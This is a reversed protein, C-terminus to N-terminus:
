GPATIALAWVGFVITGLIVSVVVHIFTIYASMRTSEDYLARIAVGDLVIAAVVGLFIPLQTEAAFTAVLVSVAAPVPGVVFANRIPVDGLVNRAAIHATVSLFIAFSAFTGAVALPGEPAAQLLFM